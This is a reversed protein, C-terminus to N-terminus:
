ELSPLRFFGELFCLGEVVLCVVGSLSGLFTLICGLKPLLVVKVRAIWAISVGLICLLLSLLALVHLYPILTGFSTQPLSNGHIIWLSVLSLCTGLGAFMHSLTLYRKPIEAGM